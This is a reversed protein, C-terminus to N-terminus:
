APEGEIPFVEISPTQDPRLYLEYAVVARFDHRPGSPYFKEKFEKWNMKQSMDCVM